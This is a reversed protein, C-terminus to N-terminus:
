KDIVEKAYHNIIKCCERAKEENFRFDNFLNLMFNYATEWEPCFTNTFVKNLPYYHRSAFLGEQIIKDLVFNPNALRLNYRWHVSLRKEKFKPLLLDDYIENLKAKHSKAKPIFANVEEKYLKVDILESNLWNSKFCENNIHTSNNIVNIYYQNMEILSKEDFNFDTINELSDNAHIKGFGGYGIDIAKSYGTSYLELNVEKPLQNNFDPYGLCADDIIKLHPAQKKIKSFFSIQGKEEGYNRVTLIGSYKNPNKILKQLVIDQDITLTRNNVDIIEFPCDAKIFCAPLLHCVNVPIMWMGDGKNKLLFSFLIASARTNYIRKM